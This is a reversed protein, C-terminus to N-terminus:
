RNISQNISINGIKLPPQGIASVVTRSGTGSRILFNTVKIQSLFFINKGYGILSHFFLNISAIMNIQNKQKDFESFTELFFPRSQCQHIVRSYRGTYTYTRNGSGTRAEQKPEPVSRFFLNLIIIQSTKDFFNRVKQLFYIFIACFM